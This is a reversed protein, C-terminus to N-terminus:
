DGDSFKDIITFTMEMDSDKGKDSFSKIAVLDGEEDYLAIENISKGGLTEKPLICTYIVSIGDSRLEAGDVEQRLLENQLSIDTPLPIRYDTGQKAGDGFAMGVIKPFKNIIGARVKVMKAKALNTVVSQSM